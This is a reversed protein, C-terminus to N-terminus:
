LWLRPNQFSVVQSDKIVPGEWVWLLEVDPWIEKYVGPKSYFMCGVCLSLRKQGGSNMGCLDNGFEPGLRGENVNKRRRWCATDMGSLCLILLLLWLPWFLSFVFCFL